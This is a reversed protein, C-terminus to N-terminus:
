QQVGLNPETISKYGGIMSDKLVSFPNLDQGIKKEINSNLFNQGLSYIWVTILILAFFVTLTHLIDRREHEPKSRLHHIIKRM